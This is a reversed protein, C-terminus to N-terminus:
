APALLRKFVDLVAALRVQPDSADPQGIDALVWRDLTFAVALTLPRLLNPDLDKRVAGVRQGIDLAAGIRQVVSAAVPELAPPAQQAGSANANLRRMVEAELPHQSLWAQALSYAEAVATWFSEAGVIPHSPRAAAVLRDVTDRVATSLLDDRDAFYYYLQGKGVEARRVVGNTSAREWGSEALEELAAQLLGRQRTVDLKAFRALPM